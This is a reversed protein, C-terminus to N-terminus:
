CNQPVKLHVTSPSVRACVLIWEGGVAGGMWAPVYCQALNWTSYLQDKNTIWKSYQLVYMVLGFERVIEEGGGAAMLNNELDTLRKRRQLNM